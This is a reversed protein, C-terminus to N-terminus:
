TQEGAPAVAPTSVDSFKSVPVCLRAVGYVIFGALVGPLVEYISESLNLVYKWYLATGLGALIM